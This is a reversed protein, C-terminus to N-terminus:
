TQPSDPAPTTPPNEPSSKTSMPSDASDPPRFGAVNAAFALAKTSPWGARKLRRANEMMVDHTKGKILVVKPPLRFPAMSHRLTQFQRHRTLPRRALRHGNRCVNARM